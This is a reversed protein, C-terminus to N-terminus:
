GVLSNASPSYYYSKVKAVRIENAHLSFWLTINFINIINLCIKLLGNQNGSSMIGCIHFVSLSVRIFNPSVFKNLPRLISQPSYPDVLRSITYQTCPM